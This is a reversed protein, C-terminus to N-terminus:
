APDQTRDRLARAYDASSEIDPRNGVVGARKWYAVLDAGTRPMEGAPLPSESDGHTGPFIDDLTVSELLFDREETYNATSADGGLRWSAFRLCATIDEGELDPHEQLVQDSTLGSALLDLVDTV